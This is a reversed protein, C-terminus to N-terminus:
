GRGDELYKERCEPSCFYHGGSSIASSVPVFRGCVPDKEMEEEDGGGPPGAPGGGSTNGHPHDHHHHVVNFYFVRKLIRYGLYILILIIATRLM